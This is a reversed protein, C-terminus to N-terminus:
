HMAVPVCPQVAAPQIKQSVPCDIRCSPLVVTEAYSASLASSAPGTDHHNHSAASSPQWPTLISSPRFSISFMQDFESSGHQALVSSSFSHVAM